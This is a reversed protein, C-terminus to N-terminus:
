PPSRRASPAPGRPGRPSRARSRASRRPPRTSCPPRRSPAGRRRPCRPPACPPRARPSAGPSGGGTRSGRRPSRGAGRRARSTGPRPRRRGSRPPRRAPARPRTAGPAPSSAREGLRHRAVEELQHGVLVLVLHGPEVGVAVERRAHRALELAVIAQPHVERRRQPGRLIGRGALGALAGVARPHERGHGHERLELPQAAGREIREAVRRLPALLAPQDGLVLRSSASIRSRRAGAVSSVATSRAESGSCMRPKPGTFARWRACTTPAGPPAARAAERGPPARRAFGAIGIRAAAQAAADPGPSGRGPCPTPARAGAHALGETASPCPSSARSTASPFARSCPAPRSPGCRRWWRTWPTPTARPTRRARLGLLRGAPDRAQRALLGRTTCSSSCASSRTPSRRSKRSTSSARRRRGAPLAHRRPPRADLPQRGVAHGRDRGAPLRPRLRGHGLGGDGLAHGRLPAQMFPTPSATASTSRSCRATCRPSGAAPSRPATSPPSTASAASCRAAPAWAPGTSRPSSGRSATAAAPRRDDRRHGPRRAAPALGGPAGRRHGRLLAM